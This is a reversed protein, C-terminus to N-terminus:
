TLDKSLIAWRRSGSRTQRGCANLLTRYRGPSVSESVIEFEFTNRKQRRVVIVCPRDGYELENVSLRVTNNGFVTVVLPRYDSEGKLRLSITVQDGLEKLGFIERAAARPIQIQNGGRTEEPMIELILSGRVGSPGTSQRKPEAKRSWTFTAQRAAARRKEFQDREARYSTLLSDSFPVSGADVGKAWSVLEQPAATAKIHIAFEINNLLGDRTLNNSGVWLYHEGSGALWVVKPHFVGSYHQMVRVEVGSNAMEEVARPDTIGHDTGIYAVVRRNGQRSKWTAIPKKLQRWGSITVAYFYLRLEDANTGNALTSVLSDLLDTVSWGEFRGTPLASPGKSRLKSAM